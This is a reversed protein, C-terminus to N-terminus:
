TRSPESGVDKVSILFIFCQSSDFSHSLTFIFESKGVHIFCPTPDAHPDGDNQHWDPDPDADVDFNPNVNWLVPAM